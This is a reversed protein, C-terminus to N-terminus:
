KFKETYIQILFINYTPSTYCLISIMMNLSGAHDSFVLFVHNELHYILFNIGSLFQSHYEM